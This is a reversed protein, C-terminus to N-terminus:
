GGHDPQWSVDRLNIWDLGWSWPTLAEAESGDPALSILSFGYSPSRALGILRTGDPSWAVDWLDVLQDEVRPPRLHSAPGDGDRDSVVISGDAGVFALQSGDPSWDAVGDSEHILGPMVETTGSAHLVHVADKWSMTAEGSWVETRVTVALDGSSSWAVGIPVGDTRWLLSPPTGDLHAAWVGDDNVYAIADGEPSWAFPASGRAPRGVTLTREHGELTTVRLEALDPKRGIPINEANITYALYALHSSDPSWEPCPTGISKRVGYSGTPLDVRLAPDDVVTAGAVGLVIISAPSGSNKSVYALWRGDPSFAPCREHAASSTLRRTPEGERTIYVDMPRPATEVTALELPNTLSPGAGADAAFAISGPRIALRAPAVEPRATSPAVTATEAGRDTESDLAYVVIAASVVVAAAAVLWARGRRGAPDRPPAEAQDTVGRSARRLVEDATIPNENARRAVERLQDTITM